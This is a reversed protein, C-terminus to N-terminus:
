KIAKERLHATGISLQFPNSNNVPTDCKQSLDGLKPVDCSSNAGHQNCFKGAARKMDDVV